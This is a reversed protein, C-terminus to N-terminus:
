VKGYIGRCQWLLLLSGALFCLAKLGLSISELNYNWNIYFLLIAPGFAIIVPALQKIGMSWLWDGFARHYILVRTTVAVPLSALKALGAGFIGLLPVLAATTALVSLGAVLAGLSAMRFNGTGYMLSGPLISTAAFANALALAKLTMTAQEAFKAGLWVVLIEEGWIFIALSVASGVLTTVFMGKNFISLIASINKGLGAIKPFAFGLSHALVSHVAQTIQVCPVYFAVMSPGLFSSVFLRDLQSSLLGAISQLWSYVSFSLFEHVARRSCGPKLWSTSHMFRCAVLIAASLGALLCVAQVVLMERLGFGLLVVACIAATALLSTATRLLGTIDYREFGNIIAYILGTLFHCVMALTLFPLAAGVENIQQIPVRLIDLFPIALIFVAAVLTAGLGLYMTLSARATLIVLQTQQGGRQQAVFYTTTTAIGLDALITMALFTNLM